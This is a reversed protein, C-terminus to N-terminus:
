RAARRPRTLARVFARVCACVCAPKCVRVCMALFTAEVCRIPLAREVIEHATRLVHALSRGYVAEVDTFLRELHNYQLASIYRQVAVLRAAMPEGSDAPLLQPRPVRPLARNGVVLARAVRREEDSQPMFTRVDARRGLETARLRAREAEEGDRGGDGGGGVSLVASLLAFLEADADAAPPAPPAAVAAAAGAAAGDSAAQPQQM